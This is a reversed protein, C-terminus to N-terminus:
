INLEQEISEPIEEQPLDEWRAKTEPYHPFVAACAIVETCNIHNKTYLSKGIATIDNKRILCKLHETNNFPVDFEAFFHYGSWYFKGDDAEIKNKANAYQFGDKYSNERVIGYYHNNEVMVVKEVEIVDPKDALWNEMEKDTFVRALCM